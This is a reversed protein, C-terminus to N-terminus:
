FSSLYHHPQTDLPHEQPLQFFITIFSYGTYAYVYGLIYIYMFIFSLSLQKLLMLSILRFM